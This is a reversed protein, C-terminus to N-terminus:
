ITSDIQQTMAENRSIARYAKNALSLLLDKAKGSISTGGSNAGATERHEELAAALEEASVTGDQNTDMADFVSQSAGTEGSSLGGGADADWETFLLSSINQGAANMAELSGAQPLEENMIAALLERADSQGTGEMRPFADQEDEEGLKMRTFLAARKLQLAKDLEELSVSGDQDADLEDFTQQSLGSEKMSVKGDGDTDLDSFLATSLNESKRNKQSNSLNFFEEWYSSSDTSSLATISM